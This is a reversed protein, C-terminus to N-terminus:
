NGIAIRPRWQLWEDQVEPQLDFVQGAHARSGKRADTPTAFSISGELLSEVSDTRIVRWFEKEHFLAVYYNLSDAHFLLSAGYNGNYTTRLETLEHNGMLRQLEAVTNGVASDESNAPAAPVEAEGRQWRGAM